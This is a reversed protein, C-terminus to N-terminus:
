HTPLQFAIVNEYDAGQPTIVTPVPYAGAQCYGSRNYQHMVSYYGVGWTAFCGGSYQNTFDPDKLGWIHGAEHNINKRYESADLIPVHAGNMYMLGFRQHMPNVAPVPDAFKVCSDPLCGSGHNAYIRLEVDPLNTLPCPGVGNPDIGWLDVRLDAGNMRDWRPSHVLFADNVMSYLNSDGVAGTVDDVCFDEDFIGQGATDWHQYYLHNSQTTFWPHNASAQPMPWVVWPALGAGFLLLLVAGRLGSTRCRTINM